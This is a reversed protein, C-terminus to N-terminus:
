REIGRAAICSVLDNQRASGALKETKRLEDGVLEASRHAEAPRDARRVMYVRRVLAPAHLPRTVLQAMIGAIGTSGPSTIIAVSM